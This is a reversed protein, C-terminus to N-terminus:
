CNSAEEETTVKYGPIGYADALKVFDPHIPFYQTLFPKDHFLEQWQRVMGLAGNNVIIIKIPLNM